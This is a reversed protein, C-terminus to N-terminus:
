YYREKHQRGQALVYSLDADTPNGDRQQLLRAALQAFCMFHQPWGHTEAAIAHIWRTVDGKIRGDKVLWDRIVAKEAAESLCGLNIVCGDSYRSIGLAGFATQSPGLEGPAGQILLTTGGRTRLANARLQAFLDSVETRGHFYKAPGRDDVMIAPLAAPGTELVTQDPREGFPASTRETRTKKHDQM